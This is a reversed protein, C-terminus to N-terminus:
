QVKQWSNNTQDYSMGWADKVAKDPEAQISQALIEVSLQYTTDGVTLTKLPKAENILISTLDGAAVSGNHYYYGNNKTWKLSDTGTNVLLVADKGCTEHSCTPTDCITPAEGYIGTVNGYDDVSVWNVVIAARIYAPINGNNRIQVDKKINNEFKEIVEPPVSVPQFTNQVPESKDVLYAMTGAISITLLLALSVLLAISKHQTKM